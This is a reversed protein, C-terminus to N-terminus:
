RLSCFHPQLPQTKCPHSKLTRARVLKWAEAEATGGKMDSDASTDTSKEPILVVPHIEGNRMLAQAAIEGRDNIAVASVIYYKRSNNILTNLDVLAGGNDSVFGRLDEVGPNFTLGVIIGNNNVSFAESAPDADLTGLDNMSGNHYFFAHRGGSATRSYGVVDDLDNIWDPHAYTGGLTNLDTMTGAKWIFPHVATDGALNSAGVVTGNANIQVAAGFTGGLTGLDTMTGKEWLFPHTDPVGATGAVNSTYSWGVIQGAVNIDITTSDPGGLTGIDRINGTKSWLAAHTQTTVPLFLANIGFDLDACGSSTTPLWLCNAQPVNVFDDAATTSSVGAIRSSKDIANGASQVGGLTGLDEIVDNRWRVSHVIPAGTAPDTEGNQSIGASVGKDNVTIAWSSVGDVLAGLDTTGHNWLFAHDVNGDFFCWDPCLPDAVGTGNVGSAEGRANIVRSGPNSFQGYGGGFSGADKVIYHPLSPRGGTVPTPVALAPAALTSGLLLWTMISKSKDM